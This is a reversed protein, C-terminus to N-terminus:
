IKAVTMTLIRVVTISLIQGHDHEVNKLYKVTVVSMRVYALYDFFDIDLM